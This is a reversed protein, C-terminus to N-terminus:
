QGARKKLGDLATDQADGPKAECIDKMAKLLDAFSTGKEALRRDIESIALKDQERSAKVIKLENEKQALDRSLTANRVGLQKYDHALYMGSGILGAIVGWQILPVWGGALSLLKTWM